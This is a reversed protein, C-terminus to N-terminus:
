GSTTALLLTNVRIVQYVNLLIRSTNERTSCEVTRSIDADILWRRSTLIENASHRLITPSSLMRHPSLESTSRLGLM